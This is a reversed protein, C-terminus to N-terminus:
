VDRDVSLLRADYAAPGLNLSRGPLAIDQCFTKTSNTLIEMFMELFIDEILSRGM